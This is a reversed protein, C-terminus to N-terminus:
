DCACQARVMWNGTMKKMWYLYMGKNINYYIVRGNFLRHQKVYTGMTGIYSRSQKAPGTSVLEFQKCPEILKLIFDVIKVITVINLLIFNRSNRANVKQNKLAAILQLISEEQLNYM